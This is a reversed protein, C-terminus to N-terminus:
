KLVVKKGNIIYLGKVAKKVQQGQLNYIANNKVPAVPLNEIVTPVSSKVNVVYSNITEMDGGYVTVTAKYGTETIEVKKAVLAAAGNAEAEIDDATVEKDEADINYEKVDADFGPVSEGFVKLSNLKANYILAIDDVLLEDNGSGQGADANTSLTILIATPEETNETYAFPASVRVWEGNTEAITNYKARAVVNTYTKNEPDQYYTGDTIVTSITAYPHDANAKGQKFKVWVAISDPRSYM